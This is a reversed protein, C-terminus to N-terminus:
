WSNTIRQEQKLVKTLHQINLHQHLSQNKNVYKNKNTIKTKM